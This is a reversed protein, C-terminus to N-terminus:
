APAKFGNSSQGQALSEIRQRFKRIVKAELAFAQRGEHDAYQANLVNNIAAQEYEDWLEHFFPVSAIAQAARRRQEDTM